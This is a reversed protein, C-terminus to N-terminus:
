ARAGKRRNEEKRLPQLNELSWCKKFDEDEPKTFNFSSIPRIHDIEWVSGYNNWNMEPEFRSELHRMLDELTYGVLREWKRGSKNRKISKNIDVSMIHNLRFKPDRKYRSRYYALRKDKNKQYYDKHKDLIKRKNKQYYDKLYDARQRKHKLYYTRREEKHDWYYDVQRILIKEKYKQYYDKMYNAKQERNKQYYATRHTRMCKRCWCQPGDRSAKRKSFMEKPLIQGCRSCRKL